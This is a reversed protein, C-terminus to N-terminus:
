QLDSIDCAKRGADILVLLLLLIMVVDKMVPIAVSICAIAAGFKCM